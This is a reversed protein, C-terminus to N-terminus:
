KADIYNIFTTPEDPNHDDLYQNNAKFYRHNVTTVGGRLNLEIFAYMDPDVM